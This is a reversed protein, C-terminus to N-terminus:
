SLKKLQNNLSSVLLHIGSGVDTLPKRPFARQINIFCPTQEYSGRYGAVLLPNLFNGPGIM